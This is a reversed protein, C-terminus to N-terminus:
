FGAPRVLPSDELEAARWLHWAIWVMYLSGAAKLVLQLWPAVAFLAGLGDAALVIMVMVGVLIGALLPLTPLM